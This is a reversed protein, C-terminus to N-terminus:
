KRKENLDVQDFKRKLCLIFTDCSSTVKSDLRRLLFILRVILFFDEKGNTSLQLLFFFALYSIHCIRSGQVVMSARKDNLYTYM